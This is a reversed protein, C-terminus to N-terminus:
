VISHYSIPSNDKVMQIWLKILWLFFCNIGESSLGERHIGIQSDQQLFLVEMSHLHHYFLSPIFTLSGLESQLFSSHQTRIRHIQRETKSM